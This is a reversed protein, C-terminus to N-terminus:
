ARAADRDQSLYKVMFITEPRLLKGSQRHLTSAAGASQAIPSQWGLLVRAVGDRVGSLGV